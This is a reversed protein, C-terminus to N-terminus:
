HIAICILRIEVNKEVNEAAAIPSGNAYTALGDYIDGNFSIWNDM